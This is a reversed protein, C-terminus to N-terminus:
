KKPYILIQNNDLCFPTWRNDNESPPEFLEYEDDGWELIKYTFNYPIVVPEIVWQGWGTPKISDPMELHFCLYTEMYQIVSDTYNLEIFYGNMINEMNVDYCQFTGVVRGTNEVAPEEITPEVVTTSDKTTPEETTPDEIESNGNCAFLLAALASLLFFKTRMLM